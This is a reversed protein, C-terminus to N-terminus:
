YGALAALEIFEKFTKEGIHAMCGSLAALMMVVFFSFALLGFKETVM